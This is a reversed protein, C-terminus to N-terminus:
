MTWSPIEPKLQAADQLAVMAEPFRRQEVLVHALHIHAEAFDPKLRIAERFESAGYDNEDTLERVLV